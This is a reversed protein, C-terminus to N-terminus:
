NRSTVQRNTENLATVNYNGHGDVNVIARSFVRSIRSSSSSTVESCRDEDRGTLCHDMGDCVESVRICQLNDCLFGECAEFVCQDEDSGDRCDQRHDCVLTFALTQVGDECTFMPIVGGNETECTDVFDEKFCDTAPDCSLFDHTVHGDPCRTAAALRLENQNADTERLPIGNDDNNNDKSDDISAPELSTQTQAAPSFECLFQTLIDTDCPIMKIAGDDDRMGCSPYKPAEFHDFSLDLAMKRDNWQLATKYMKPLNPNSTKLGLYMKLWLRKRQIINLVAKEEEVTNLSALDSNRLLCIQNAENWTLSTAWAVFSYCRSGYAIAGKCKNSSYWCGLEDENNECEERLNCEVHRKFLKYNPSSCNYHGSRTFRPGDEQTHFSFLMKFGITGYQTKSVFEIKLSIDFLKAHAMDTGCLRYLPNDRITSDIEGFFTICISDYRLAFIDFSILISSYQRTLTIFTSVKLNPPYKMSIGDFFPTTVFGFRETLITLNLAPRFLNSTFTLFTKAKFPAHSIIRFKICNVSSYLDPPRERSSYAGYLFNKTAHCDIVVLQFNWEKSSFLKDFSVSLFTDPSGILRFICMLDSDFTDSTNRRLVTLTGHDATIDVDGDSKM